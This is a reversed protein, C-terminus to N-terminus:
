CRKCGEVKSAPCQRGEANQVEDHEAKGEVDPLHTTVETWQKNYAGAPGAYAGPQAGSSCSSSIKSTRSRFPHGKRLQM